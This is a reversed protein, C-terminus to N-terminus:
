GVVTTLLEQGQAGAGRGVVAAFAEAVENSTFRAYSRLHCELSHGMAQSLVKAPLGLRHGEYSYRHRLSYAVLEGGMAAAEAKLQHWVAQRRLFVSLGDGANGVAGLPPLSEGLQLRGLLNWQQPTGDVDRVPLAHLQRPKTQGGGAKKQYSCWLQVGEPHPHLQLHRLEGPRLGYVAM